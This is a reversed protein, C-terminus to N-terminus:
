GPAPGGPAHADRAFLRGFVWAAPGSLAYVVALAPLFAEPYFGLILVAGAIPLVIRFSWRKSLDLKKFSWYRFTSVMLVGLGILGFTVLGILWPRWSPPPAIILFTAVVGAAAPSPLGVFWRSDVHTTQVNFRALRTATAALYFLPILWGARPLEQLGWFHAVLAPAVGFTVVDALSDLERGFDSETGTLRAIRGDLSDLVAAVLICIGAVEYRGRYGAIVAYFGLLLNGVTFASPLLFAGRRLRGDDRLRATV